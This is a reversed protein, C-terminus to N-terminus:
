LFHARSTLHLHAVLVCSVHSSSPTASRPSLVAARILPDPPYTHVLRKLLQGRDILFGDPYGPYVPVDPAVAL